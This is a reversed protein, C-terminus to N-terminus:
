ILLKTGGDICNGGVAVIDLLFQKIFAANNSLKIDILIKKRVTPTNISMCNSVVDTLMVNFNYTNLTLFLCYLCKVFKSAFLKSKPHPFVSLPTFYQCATPDQPVSHTPLYCLTATSLAQQKYPSFPKKRISLFLSPHLKWRLM